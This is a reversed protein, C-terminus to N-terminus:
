PGFASIQMAGIRSRSPRRGGQASGSTAPVQLLHKLRRLDQDSQRRLLWAVLPGLPRLTEHTTVGASWRIDNSYDAVYAWVQSAPRNIDVSGVIRVLPRGGPQADRQLLELIRFLETVRRRGPEGIRRGATTPSSM